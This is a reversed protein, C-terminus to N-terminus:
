AAAGDADPKRASTAVFSNQWTWFEANGFLALGRLIVYTGLVACVVGVILAAALGRVMFAYGLPDLLLDFM